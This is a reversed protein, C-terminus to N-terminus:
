DKTKKAVRVEKVLFENPSGTAEIRFNWGWGGAFSANTVKWTHEQWEDGAALSFHGPAGRYGSLSEYVLGMNAPKDPQLRRAVVTIELNTTGFPAFTPEVRFYIYRGESGHAFNTRRWSETLGNVVATTKPHVQSVGKNENVAGLRCSAIRAQSFDTGWPFPQRAQARATEVLPQPVGIVLRPSADVRLEEGAKLLAVAGSADAVRVDGDFRITNVTEPPSWTALVRLPGAAFEQSPAGEFVFGYGNAGVKLWGQYSPEPGLVSTMQRYAEYAPRLSWDPRVLGYDSGRGYAPGRVEFWFVRQFGQSLAMPYLKLVAEAQKRDEEADPQVTSQRGSETIWLPMDARQGNAALMRRLSSALSLYGPEGGELAAALNEYPHVCVFDFHGAAGERIVADLWGVDFNACSIGIKIQPDIKQGALHAERVMDAYIKPTGNRAFSGNFENWVEWYLIDERYRQMVGSVYDRWFQMDKVPCTRTSGDVTAWPAFYLFAGSIRLGNTRANAVLRDGPEWNWVGQSPQLTQWEPFLRLWRAGAQRALPNFRPYEKSWEASSTVAWPSNDDRPDAAAAPLAAGALLALATWRMCNM